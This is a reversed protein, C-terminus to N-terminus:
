VFACLQLSISFNYFLHLFSHVSRKFTNGTIAIPTKGTQAELDHRKTYYFSMKHYIKLYKNFLDGAALIM